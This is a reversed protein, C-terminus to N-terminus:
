QEPTWGYIDDFRAALSKPKTLRLVTDRAFAMPGSYHFTRANGRSIGQIHSARPKRDREFSRLASPINQVNKPLHKALIAADEIAMAAGQAMFPLMAHAADGMLAVHGHTWPGSGDVSCLAWKLWREPKGLLNRTEAPWDKFVRLVADKDAKASWTEDSWDERALAVINLERGGRIPYHVLHSNRHLWLGSDRAFKADVQDIPVTARYAVQGSFRANVHGPVHRRTRSWVGDAGILAKCKQNATEEGLRYICVLHDYPSPTLDQVECSLRITIGPTKQARDLLVRQLDARHIVWFPNGHRERIFKGLEVRALQKGNEGSWIRLGDPAYAFAELDKLVDLRQLVSCANPSLQLGAGVESIENAKELLVINHGQQRLALAATLGGIGGGAIVIPTLADDDTETM